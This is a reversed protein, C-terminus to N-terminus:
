PPESIHILSLWITQNKYDSFLLSGDESKTIGAIKPVKNFTRVTSFDLLLSIEDNSNISHVKSGNSFYISNNLGLTPGDLYKGFSESLIPVRAYISQSLSITLFIFINIKNM